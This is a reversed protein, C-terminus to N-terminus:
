WEEYGGKLSYVDTFGHSTLFNAVDQSSNGHYCYVIICKNLLKM